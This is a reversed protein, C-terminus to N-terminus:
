PLLSASPRRGTARSRSASWISTAGAAMTRPSVRSFRVTDTTTPRTNTTTPTQNPNRCFPDRSAPIAKEARVSRPKGAPVTWPVERDLVEIAGGDQECDDQEGHHHRQSDISLVLMRRLQCRAPRWYLPRRTLPGPAQYAPTAHHPRVRVQDIRGIDVLVEGRPRGVLTGRQLPQPSLDLCGRRAGLLADAIAQRAELEVTVRQEAETICQVAGFEPM